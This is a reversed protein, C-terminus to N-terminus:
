AVDRTLKLPVLDAQVQEVDFSPGSRDWNVIEVVSVRRSVDLPRLKRALLAGFHRDHTTVVLQRHAAIRRLLDVLGLLHVDDLNQLPDDLVVTQLATPALGLNFALFVTVAMANAQSTSLSRGPDPMMVGHSPDRAVADLRNKGYWNRTELAVSRFTPHPEIAAYLQDLLPQMERLRANLFEESDRKLEKMLIEAVTGTAQRAALTASAEAHEREMEQAHLEAARLSSVKGLAELRAELSGGRALLDSIDAQRERLQELVARAREQPPVNADARAPISAVLQELHALEEQQREDYVRRAALGREEADRVRELRTLGTVEASLREGVREHARIADDLARALAGGGSDGLMGALRRRLEGEDVAQGCTPCAESVHRLAITAMAALDEREARQAELAARTLRVAEAAREEDLELERVVAAQRALEDRTVGSGLPAQPPTIGEIDALAVRIGEAQRRSEADLNRLSSIADGLTLDQSPDVGSTQLALRASQLWHERAAPLDERGAHRLEEELLTCRARAATLLSALSELQNQQETLSRSWARRATDFARVFDELAGAGVMTSLAAFREDDSRGVLFERLSEQQLYYSDVLLRFLEAPTSGTARVLTRAIWDIAETGRLQIEDGEVVVTSDLKALREAGPNAVKRRVTWTRAEPSILEVSAHTEGTLSYLSRPDAGRPHEGSLCWAIADCVTSKGFGNAGQLIVVDASLNLQATGAIGGFGTITVQGLRM